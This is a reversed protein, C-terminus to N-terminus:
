RSWPSSTPTPRAFCTTVPARPASSCAASGSWSGRDPRTWCTTPRYSSPRGLEPRQRLGVVDGGLAPEEIPDLRDTLREPADAQPDLGELGVDAEARGRAEVIERALKMAAARLAPGRESLRAIRRGLEARLDPAAHRAWGEGIARHRRALSAAEAELLPALDRLALDAEAVARELLRARHESEELPRSLALEREDVEARLSAALRRVGRTEAARVLARDRALDQLWAVLHGWDRTAQSDSRAEVASVVWVPGPLRGLRDRVVSETFAVATRLDDPAVRDAKSCVIAVHQV